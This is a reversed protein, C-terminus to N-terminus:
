SCYSQDDQEEQMDASVGSDHDELSVSVSYQAAIMFIMNAHNYHDCM